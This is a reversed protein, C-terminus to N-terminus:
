SNNKCNCCVGNVAVEVSAVSSVASGVNDIIGSIDVNDIDFVSQCCLCKFHAHNTLTKDFRDGGSIQIRRIKNELALSNLNRYVTALNVSPMELKCRQLVMEATPHDSSNLVANLVVQKQRTLRM